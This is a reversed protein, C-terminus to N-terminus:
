VGVRVKGTLLQQMLGRKQAKLQELYAKTERIEADAANLIEAIRIQEALPPFSFQFNALNTKSLGYVSIGTATSQMQQKISKSMFLYGLFDPAFATRPRVAITHLGGIVKKTEVNKLEVCDGIGVLDESADAFVLDGSTLFQFAKQSCEKKLRPMRRESSLDLISKNFKAHIDGYHIYLYSGLEADYTLNERSFSETKIFDFCEGLRVEQWEDKPSLLKQMLGKKRQELQALLATTTQLAADWTGLIDAIKQQEPLPPLPIELKSLSSKSIGYVSIGTAYQKMKKTVLHSKFLYGRFGFATSEAIDRIAITHLGGIVKIEEINKLEVCEGIGEYDESADAIVLDGEKLFPTNSSVGVDDKVFPIIELSQKFDLIQNKYKAHIDGYHIYRVKSNTKEYTLQERSLSETKLFEFIEGLKKLSWGNPLTHKPNNM